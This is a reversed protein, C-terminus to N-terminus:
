ASPAPVRTALWPDGSPSQPAKTPLCLAIFGFPLNSL